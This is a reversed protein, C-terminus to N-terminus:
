ASASIDAQQPQPIAMGRKRATEIWLDIVDQANAIAQAPTEGDAFCGPLEPVEVVWLHDPESWQLTMRYKYM